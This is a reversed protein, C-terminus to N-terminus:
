NGWTPSDSPVPGLFAGTISTIGGCQDVTGNFALNTGTVNDHYTGSFTNHTIMNGVLSISHNLHLNMGTGSFPNGEYPNIDFYSLGGLTAGNVYYFYYTGEPSFTLKDGHALHAPVANPSINIVHYSGNGRLHCVDVKEKKPKKLNDISTTLNQEDFSTSDKECGIIFIALLFPLFLKKM